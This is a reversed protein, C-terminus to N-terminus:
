PTTATHVAAFVDIERCMSLVHDDPLNQWNIPGRHTATPPLPVTGTILHVEPPWPLEIGYREGALFVRHGPAYPHALVPAPRHQADLSTAVEDALGVPMMLALIDQDLALLVQDGQTLVPWGLARYGAPTARRHVPAPGAPAASGTPPPALTAARYLLCTTCPMGADPRVIEIDDPFLLAGCLTSVVDVETQDPM